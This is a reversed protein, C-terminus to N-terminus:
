QGFSELDFVLGHLSQRATNLAMAAEETALTPISEDFTRQLLAGFLTLKVSDPQLEERRKAEAAAKEEAIRQREVAALREREAAEAREKQERATKMEAELQRRQKRLREAEKAQEADALRRELAVRLREAELSKREEALKAAEQKLRAQEAERAAREEAEKAKRAEEEVRLREREVAEAAERARRAEADDISQKATKLPLEAELVIGTLRKAEADIRRGYDLAGAKMKTRWKEINTRYGSVEKLAKKVRDYGEQSNVGAPLGKFKSVLSRLQADSVSYRVLPQDPEPPTPEFAGNPEDPM